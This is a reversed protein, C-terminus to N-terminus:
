QSENLVMRYAQFTDAAVKAQTYHALVRGRGRQALESRLKPDSALRGLAAALAGADGEPFVLGADGIVQPIEGSSSGVVPVGCAMAEILVRGFQEKWRPTTLSPLVLADMEALVQPMQESPVNGKFEMRQGLEKDQAAIALEQRLPGDGVLLLRFDGELSAAAELLVTLGKEPVLRGAYGVTFPPESVKEQYPFVEPDVGFQPIVYLPRAFGKARLVAAAEAGGAIAADAHELVYAEFLGFPVPFSRKLNQWTFFLAKIGRSQAARVALFTLLDYPEEDIHVLDPRIEDLLRGLGPYFHLHPNGNFRPNQVVLRYGRDNGPELPAQRPGFRWYPPVLLTLDVGLAALEELKRRYTALYCAKSIMLVKM